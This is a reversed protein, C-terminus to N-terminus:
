SRVPKQVVCDPAPATRPLHRKDYLLTDAVYEDANDDGRREAYKDWWSRLFLFSLTLELFACCARATDFDPRLKVCCCRM